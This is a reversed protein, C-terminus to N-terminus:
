NNGIKRLLRKGEDIVKFSEQEIVGNGDVMSTNIIRYIVKTLLLAVNISDIDNQSYNNRETGNKKIIDTINRISQMYMMGLKHLLDTVIEAHKALGDLAICVSDVQAAVVNAQAVTRSAMKLSMESDKIMLGGIGFLAFSILTQPASMELRNETGIVSVGQNIKKSIEDFKELEEIGQGSKFEVKRILEFQEKFMKIHGNLIGTKRKACILLKDIANQQCRVLKNESEAMKTFAKVNKKMAKEDIEISKNVQAFLGGVLATGLVTEIIM